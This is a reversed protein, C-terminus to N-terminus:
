YVCVCVYTPISEGIKWPLFSNFRTDTYKQKYVIDTVNFM